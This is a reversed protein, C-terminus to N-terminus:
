LPCGGSLTGVEAARPRAIAYARLPRPGATGFFRRGSMILWPATDNVIEVILISQGRPVILGAPISASGAVQVALSPDGRSCTWAVVNGNTPNTVASIVTRARPTAAGTTWAAYPDAIARAAEFLGSVAGTNLVEVRAGANATSGAAHELRYWARLYSVAEATGIFLILLFPVLLAFEVAAFGARPDPRRASFPIPNM